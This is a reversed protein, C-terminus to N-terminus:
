PQRLLDRIQRARAAEAESKRRYDQLENASTRTEVDRRNKRIDDEAYDMWHSIAQRMRLPEYTAYEARLRMVEQLASDCQEITGGIWSPSCRPVGQLISLAARSVGDDSYGHLPDNPDDFVQRQGDAGTAAWVLLMLAFACAIGVSVRLIM